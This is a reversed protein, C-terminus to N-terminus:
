TRRSRAKKHLEHKDKLLSFTRERIYLMILHDWLIIAIDKCVKEVYQNRVKNFNYLVSPNVLPQSIM